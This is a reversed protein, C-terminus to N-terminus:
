RTDNQAISLVMRLADLAFQERMARLAVSTRVVFNVSPDATAAELGVQDKIREITELYNRWEADITQLLARRLAHSGEVSAMPVAMTGKSVAGDGCVAAILHHVLPSAGPFESMLRKTITARFPAVPIHERKVDEMFIQHLRSILDPWGGAELIIDRIWYIFERQTDVIGDIEATRQREDAAIADALDQSAQLFSEIRPDVVGSPEWAVTEAYRWLAEEGYAQFIEDELSALLRTRGVEGQRGARGRLQEDIRSSLNSEVAYVMLGSKRKYEQDVIIDAGRGAMNTAVTVAGRKGANKIIEIEHEAVEAHLLQHPMGRRQLADSLRKASAITRGVVLIPAGTRHVDEMDNLLCDLKERESRFFITPLDKRKMGRHPTLACVDLGYLNFLEDRTARATGSMGGVKAYLRYFSRYTISATVSNEESEKVGAAQEVTQQLGRPLRYDWKPHGTFEDVLIVKGDKIIYDRNEKFFARAYLASEFSALVDPDGAAFIDKGILKAAKALGQPTLAMTKFRPDIEYDENPVLKNVIDVFAPRPPLPKGKSAESIILSTRAEDILISDVEDIIAYPFGRLVRESKEMVLNDRLYDFGVEQNAVYTIDKAYEKVRARRDTREVVTGVSVGLEDFIRRMWESDRRALYDNTTIIHMGKGSLAQLYAPLAATLTKGEGTRMEVVKGDWLLFAGYLQSANPGYGFVIRSTHAFIAFAEPLFEELRGPNAAINRKLRERAVRLAAM